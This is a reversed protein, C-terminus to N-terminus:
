YSGEGKLLETTCLHEGRTEQALGAQQPQMAKERRGSGFKEKLSSARKYITHMYYMYIQAHMLKCDIGHM